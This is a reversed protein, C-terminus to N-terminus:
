SGYRRGGYTGHLTTEQTYLANPEACSQVAGKDCVVGRSMVDISMVLVINLGLIMSSLVCVPPHIHPVHWPARPVQAAYTISVYSCHGLYQQAMNQKSVVTEKAHYAAGPQRM